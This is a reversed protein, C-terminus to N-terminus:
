REGESDKKTVVLENKIQLYRNLPETSYIGEEEDTKVKRKRTKGCKM